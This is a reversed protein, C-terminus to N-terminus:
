DNIEIIKGKVKPISIELLGNRYSAKIRKEDIPYPLPITRSSRQLAESRRYVKNRDDEEIFIDQKKVSISLTDGLINIGIQEKRLGPLEATILHKDVKDLVEVHFSEQPFLPQRFFDDITELFGRVPPVHLFDKVSKFWDEFPEPKVPYKPQDPKKVM